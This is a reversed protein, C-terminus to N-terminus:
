HCRHQRTKDNDANQWDKLEPARSLKILEEHLTPPPHGGRPCFLENPGVPLLGQSSVCAAFITVTYQAHFSFTTDNKVGADHVGYQAERICLYYKSLSHGHLCVCVWGDSM